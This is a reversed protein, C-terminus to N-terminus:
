NCCTLGETNEMGYQACNDGEGGCLFVNNVINDTQSDLEGNYVFVTGAYEGGLRKACVGNPYSGGPLLSYCFAKSSFTTGTASSGSATQFQINLHQFQPCRGSTVNEASYAFCEMNGMAHRKASQIRNLVARAETMRSREITKEYLPMAITVLIGVIVVATLIEVLTFGSCLWDKSIRQNLGRQKRNEKIKNM